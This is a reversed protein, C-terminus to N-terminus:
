QDDRKHRSEREGRWRGLTGFNKRSSMFQKILAHFKYTGPKEKESIRIYADRCRISCWHQQVRVKSSQCFEHNCTRCLKSRSNWEETYARLPRLLVNLEPHKPYLSRGYFWDALEKSQHADLKIVPYGHRKHEVAHGGQRTYTDFNEQPFFAVKEIRGAIRRAKRDAVPNINRSVLGKVRWLELRAEQIGITPYVGISYSRESGYIRYKVRWTAHGSRLMFLHLGDGDYIKKGPSATKIFEEVADTSLKEFKLAM